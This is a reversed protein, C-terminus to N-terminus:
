AWTPATPPRAEMATAAFMPVATEILAGAAMVTLIVSVNTLFDRATM